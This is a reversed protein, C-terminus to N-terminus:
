RPYWSLEKFIDEKPATEGTIKEFEDILHLMKACYENRKDELKLEHYDNAKQICEYISCCLYGIVNDKGFRKLMEEILNKRNM